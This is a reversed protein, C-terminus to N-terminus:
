WTVPLSHVGYTVNSRRYSVETFDIALRLTRFRRLLAPFALNLEMRALPLGVCHHIGYGYALHSQRPRDFDLHDPRPFRAPDRNAAPLSVLVQDGRRITTGNVVVDETATRIEGHQPICVYRVLEDVASDVIAPDDRLRALQDPNRLLALTGIGLMNATTEHGAVLLLNGIGVLEEDTVEKGHRRIVRGLLNDGPDARAAAVQARMGARLADRAPILTDVTSMVDTMIRTLSAFDFENATLGLLERILTSPAPLAFLAVLDVPPGAAAMAALREEAIEAFRPRLARVRQETFEGAILQRLRTHEPPDCEIFTGPQQSRLEEALTRDQPEPLVIGLPTLASSFRADGLVQRADEFRTILWAEDGGNLAVRSVPRTARLEAFAPDPDFPCGAARRYPLPLPETM